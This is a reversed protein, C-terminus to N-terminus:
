TLRWWRMLREAGSEVRQWSGGHSELIITGHTATIFAPIERKHLREIVQPSPHGYVNHRGCSIVAMRPSCLELFPDCSSSKSGHHGVKLLDCHLLDGYSLLEYEITSDIDATLLVSSSDCDMRMVLGAQNTRERGFLLQSDPMLVSFKLRDGIEIREGASLTDVPVRLRSSLEVLAAFTVSPSKDGNVLLRDVCNAELLDLAGGIHDNDPHTLILADLKEIQFERMVRRIRPGASWEQWRPGADILVAHAGDKILIADGNEVDIFAIKCDSEVALEPLWILLNAGLLSAILFVKVSRRILSYSFAALTVIGACFMLLTSQVAVGAFPVQSLMHVFSSLLYTFEEVVFIMPVALPLWVKSLVLALLSLLQLATFGPIAIINSLGGILPLRQFLLGQIPLIAIQAAITVIVIELAYRIPAARLMSMKQPLLQKLPRYFAGISLVSGYSLLFSATLIDLPDLALEIFMAAFVLNVFEIRRSLLQGFVVIGAMITARILSPSSGGIICYGLLILFVLILRFRRPIRLLGTLVWALAAVVAVNMGSLAFIHTLGTLRLGERFEGSFEYQEGIWLAKSLAAADPEFLRDIHGRIESRINFFMRAWSVGDRSVHSLGLSDAILNCATRQSIKAAVMAQGNRMERLDCVAKGSVAIVDSPRIGRDASSDLRVRVKLERIHLTDIENALLAREIEAVSGYTDSVIRAVTGVVFCSDSREILTRIARRAPRDISQSTIYLFIMAIAILLTMFSFRRLNPRMLVVVTLLLAAIILLVMLSVSIEFFLAAVIGTSAALVIPLMPARNVGATASTPIM